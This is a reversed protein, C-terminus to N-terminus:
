AQSILPLSPQHYYRVYRQGTRDAQWEALVAFGAARLESIRKTLSRCRYLAAAEVGSISGKQVLHERVLSTMSKGNVTKAMSKHEGTPLSL